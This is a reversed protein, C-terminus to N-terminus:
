ISDIIGNLTDSPRMARAALTDDPHYYGGINVASGQAADLEAIIAAENDALAKATGAFRAALDADDGQAALAEAWYM